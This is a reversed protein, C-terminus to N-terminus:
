AYRIGRREHRYKREELQEHKKIEDLTFTQIKPEWVNLNDSDDYYVTSVPRIYNEATM